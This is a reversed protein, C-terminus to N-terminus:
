PLAESPAQRTLAAYRSPGTLSGRLHGRPLHLSTVARQIEPGTTCFRADAVAPATGQACPFHQRGLGIPSDCLILSLLM